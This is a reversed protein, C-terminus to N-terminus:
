SFVRRKNLKKKIYNFMIAASETQQCYHSSDGTILNQYYGGECKWDYLLIHLNTTKLL